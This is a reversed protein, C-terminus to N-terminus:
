KLKRFELRDIFVSEVAGVGGGKAFRGCGFNFEMSNKLEITGIEYWEYGDKVESVERHCEIVPKWNRMVSAYFAEGSGGPRKAVRIRARLAYRCGKDYAVNAFSLRVVDGGRSSLAEVATGGLAAPDSVRRGLMHGGAGQIVQFESATAYGTGTGKAPPNFAMAKEWKELFWKERGKLESFRAGGTKEAEARAVKMWAYMEPYLANQAFSEPHETAWVWKASDAIRDMMTAVTALEGMRLHHLRMSDNGVAAEAKRWRARSRALHEDTFVQPIDASFIGLRPRPRSRVCREEDAIIEKVFPAGAGYYARCFTEVLKETDVDPNWSAKAIIWEKLEAFAAHSHCGQMHLQSVGTDRFLRIDPVLNSINPMPHMCYRYNTTYHWVYFRSTIKAWGKLLEMFERSGPAESEALPLAFDANISCLDVLMNRRPKTQAPVHRTHQYAPFQIIVDPFEKEVDEAISNVFRMMPGSGAEEEKEVELCKKCQCYNQNDYQSISFVNAGPSSRITDLLNSLVTNRVEPNTCCPQTYSTRRVGNIEAFWEPHDEAYKQTPLLKELSHSMQGGYRVSMGGMEEPIHSRWGNFRCRVSFDAHRFADAWGAERRFFAPKELVDVDAPVALVAKEPVYTFWSTCFVVGAYRELIDYAGYIVGRRGGSVLVEGGGSRSIRFGDDGHDPVIEFRVRLADAGSIGASWRKWEAAAYQATDAAAYTARSLCSCAAVAALLIQCTKM